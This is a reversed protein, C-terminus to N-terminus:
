APGPAQLLRSLWATVSDDIHDLARRFAAEGRRYPDAIEQRDPELWHGLLFVKGRASPVVSECRAKQRRDMVLVLDSDKLHQPTVQRCRHASLDLGREAMLALVEPAAGQGHLAGLGASSVEAAPGLAAQLLCEAMPSRCYNGECLVLIRRFSPAGAERM